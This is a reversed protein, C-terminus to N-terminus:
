RQIVVLRDLGAYDPRIEVSQPALISQAMQRLAAGQDAGIELLLLADPACIDPAARLLREILRLGDPGGDLALNPEHRSVELRPVEETAIYPLNALLLDVRQPLAQLPELLDGQLFTVRAQHRAANQAAVVLAEESLDVAYVQAQPAHYAVSVAIAGSGTGIDAVCAAPHQALWALAAEVLHETEPRPILVAPTVAFDLGYFERQGLLYAVPEGDARRAILTEYAASQEGSLAREPYALLTTRPVDLVACLLLQADLSATEVGYLAQRAQQLAEGISPM